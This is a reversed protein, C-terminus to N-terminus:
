HVICVPDPDGGTRYLDGAALGGAIAAANDAYVALNAINPVGPIITNGSGDLLTLTRAITTFANTGTYQRVYIPETGNDAVAIELYGDDTDTIGAAIRVKDTGSLIDGEVLTLMADTGSLSNLTEKAIAVTGAAIESEVFATTAIQTTDTGATATPATPAGTLAPSDLPAKLALAAVLGSVDAIVPQSLHPVGNVISDIWESAVEAVGEVLGYVGIASIPMIATWYNLGDNYIVAFSGGIITVSGQGNITVGDTVASVTATGTGLNEITTFWPTTITAALTVTIASADDLVILEGADSQVCVYVTNGSQDNVGGMYPFYSVVGDAGNFTEVGATTTTTSATTAAATATTIQSKLSVVADNLDLIGQDHQQLAQTVSDSADGAPIITPLRNSVTNNAM